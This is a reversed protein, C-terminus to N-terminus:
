NSLSRMSMGGYVCLKLCNPSKWTPDTCSERWLARSGDDNTGGFCIGSKSCSDPNQRNQACCMQTTGTNCLSYESSPNLTGNPYYCQAQSLRIKSAVLILLFSSFTTNIMTALNFRHKKWTAKPLTFGLHKHLLNTSINKFLFYISRV